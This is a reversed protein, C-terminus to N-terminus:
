ERIKKTDKSKEDRKVRIKKSRNEQDYDGKKPGIKIM